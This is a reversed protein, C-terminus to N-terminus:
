CPSICYVVQYQALLLLLLLLGVSCPSGASAVGPPKRVKERGTYNRDLRQVCVDTMLLQLM